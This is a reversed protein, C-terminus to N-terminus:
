SPCSSGCVIDLLFSLILIVTCVLYDLIAGSCDAGEAPAVADVAAAAGGAPLVIALALLIAALARYSM